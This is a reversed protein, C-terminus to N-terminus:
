RGDKEVLVDNLMAMVHDLDDETLSEFYIRLMEPSYKATMLDLHPM